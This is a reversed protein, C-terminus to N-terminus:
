HGVHEGSFRLSIVSALLLVLGIEPAVSRTLSVTVTNEHTGQLNANGYM